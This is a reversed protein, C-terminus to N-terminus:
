KSFLEKRFEHQPENSQTECKGKDKHTAMCEQYRKIKDAPDNKETYTFPAKDNKSEASPPTNEIMESLPTSKKEKVITAGKLLESVNNDAQLALAFFVAFIYKGM